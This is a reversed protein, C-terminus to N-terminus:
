FNNNLWKQHMVKNIQFYQINFVQLIIYLHMYNLFKDHFM